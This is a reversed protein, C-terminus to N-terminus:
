YVGKNLRVVIQRKRLPCMDPILEVEDDPIRNRLTVGEKKDIESANCRRSGIESDHEHFNCLYCKKVIILRAVSQSVRGHERVSCTKHRRKPM